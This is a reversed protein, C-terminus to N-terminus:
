HDLPSLWSDQEARTLLIQSRMREFINFIVRSFFEHYARARAVQWTLALLALELVPYKQVAQDVAQRLTLKPTQACALHGAVLVCVTVQLLM